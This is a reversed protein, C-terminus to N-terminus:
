KRKLIFVEHFNHNKDTQYVAINKADLVTCSVYFVSLLHQIFSHRSVPNWLKLLEETQREPNNFM